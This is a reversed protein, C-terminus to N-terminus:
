NTSYSAEVGNKKILEDMTGDAIWKTVLNEVYASLESGKKTAIGYSQPSFRADIIECDEDVYYSLISVDVAFGDVTGATLALKADAYETYEVFEIKADTAGEVCKRTTGGAIIAITKGEFDELTKIGSDKRVLVSVADVYYPTSFDYSLKREDTITFTAAVLDIEGADLLQGRTNSTVSTYAVSVGLEDAIKKALDIELGEYKGTEPNMYGFGIVAEKCGVKLVGDKQIREVASTNKSSSKGCGVCMVATMLVATVVTVAKKWTRKKM